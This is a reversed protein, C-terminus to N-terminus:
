DHSDGMHGSLSGWTEYIARQTTTQHIPGTHSFVVASARVERPQANWDHDVLSITKSCQFNAVARYQCRRLPRVSFDFCHKSRNVPVTARSRHIQVLLRIAEVSTAPTSMRRRYVSAVSLEPM